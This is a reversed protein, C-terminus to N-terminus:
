HRERACIRVIFSVCVRLLKFYLLFIPTLIQDWVLHAVLSRWEGVPAAYPSVPPLALALPLNRCLVADCECLKVCM